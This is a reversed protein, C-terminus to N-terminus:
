KNGDLNKVWMVTDWLAKMRVTSAQRDALGDEGPQLIIKLSCPPRMIDRGSCCKRKGASNRAISTDWLECDNQYKNKEVKQTLM